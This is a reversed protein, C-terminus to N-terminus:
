QADAPDTPPVAGQVRSARYEILADVAAPPWTPIVDKTFADVLAYDGDRRTIHAAVTVIERTPGDPKLPDVPVKEATALSVLYGPTAEALRHLKPKM